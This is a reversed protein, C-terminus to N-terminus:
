IIAVQIICSVVIHAEAYQRCDRRSGNHRYGSEALHPKVLLMDLFHAKDLISKGM